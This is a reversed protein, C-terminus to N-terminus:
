ELTCGISSGTSSSLTYYPTNLLIPDGAISQAEVSIFYTGASFTGAPVLAVLDHLTRVYVLSTNQYVRVIYATAYPVTNWSVSIAKTRDLKQGKLSSNGSSDQIDIIEPTASLVNCPVVLQSEDKIAQSTVMVTYSGSEPSQITGEYSARNGNYRLLMTMGSPAKVIVRAADLAYGEPSEVFVQIGLSSGYSHEFISRLAITKNEMSCSALILLVFFVGSKQMLM